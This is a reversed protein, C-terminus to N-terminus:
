SLLEDLALGGVRHVDGDLGGLMLSPLELQEEAGVETGCGAALATIAALSPLVGAGGSGGGASTHNSPTQIQSPGHVAQSPLGSSLGGARPLLPLKKLTMAPDIGAQLDTTVQVTSGGGGNTTSTFSRNNSNDLPWDLIGRDLTIREATEDVGFDDDDDFPMLAGFFVDRDHSLLSSPPALNVAKKASSTSTLSTMDRQKPQSTTKTTPRMAQAASKDNKSTARALKGATTARVRAKARDASVANHDTNEMQEGEKGGREPRKPFDRPRGTLGANKYENPYRTRMRDRLDTATRLGLGLSEDDRISAWANGYRRFGQLLSMDEIMTYNHRKRRKTHAFPVDIGLNQLEQSSKRDTKAATTNMISETPLSGSDEIHVTNIKALSVASGATDENLRENGRTVPIEPNSKGYDDPRCVRFRDKM